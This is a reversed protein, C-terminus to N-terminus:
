DIIMAAGFGADRLAPQCYDECIRRTARIALIAGGTPLSRLIKIEAHQQGEPVDASEPAKVIARGRLRPPVYGTRFGAAAVWTQIVGGPLCVEAAAYTTRGLEEPTMRAKMRDIRRAIRRKAAMDGVPPCEALGVNELAAAFDGLAGGAVVGAALNILGNAQRQINAPIPPNRGAAFAAWARWQGQGVQVLLVRRAPMGAPMQALRVRVVNRPGAAQIFGRPAGGGLLAVPLLGALWTAIADIKSGVWTTVTTIAQQALTAVSGGVLGAVLSLVTTLAGALAEEVKVAVQGADGDLLAGIAQVIKAIIQGLASANNVIWVVLNYLKKVIGAAPVVLTALGAIIRPTLERALASVVRGVLEGFNNRINLALDGLQEFAHELLGFLRDQPNNDALLDALWDVSSLARQLAEESIGGLKASVREMIQEWTAGVARLLFYAISSPTLETPLTIDLQGFAWGFAASQLHKAFNSFFRGFGQGVGDFLTQFLQGANTLVKRAIRVANDAVNAVFATVKNFFDDIEEPSFNFARLLATVAIRGVRGLLQLAQSGLTTLANGIHSLLAGLQDWISSSPRYENIFLNGGPILRYGPTSQQFSVVYDKSAETILGV